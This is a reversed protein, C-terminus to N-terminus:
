RVSRPQGFAVRGGGWAVALTLRPDHATRAASGPSSPPQCYDEGEGRQKHLPRVLLQELTPIKFNTVRWSWCSGAVSEHPQHRRRASVSGRAVDMPDIGVRRECNTVRRAPYIPQPTYQGHVRRYARHTRPRHAARVGSSGRKSPSRRDHGDPRSTLRQPLVSSTGRRSANAPATRRWRSDSGFGTIRCM